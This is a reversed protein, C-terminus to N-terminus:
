DMKSKPEPGFSFHASYRFQQQLDLKPFRINECFVCSRRNKTVYTAFRLSLIYLLCSWFLFVSSVTVRNESFRSMLSKANWKPKLFPSLCSEMRSSLKSRTRKATILSSFGHVTLALAEEPGHQIIGLKHFSLM